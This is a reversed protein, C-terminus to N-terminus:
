ESESGFEGAARESRRKPSRAERAVKKQAKSIRLIPPCFNDATAFQANSKRVSGASEKRGLSAAQAASRSL